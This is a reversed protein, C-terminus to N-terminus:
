KNGWLYIKFNKNLKPFKLNRLTEEFNIIEVNLLKEALKKLREFSEATVTSVGHALISRNRMQQITDLLENRLNSNEPDLSNLLNYSERLELKIKGKEDIKRSLTEALEKDPIKNLDVGAKKIIEQMKHQALMETLRYIRTTADDYNLEEARRLANSFMDVIAEPALGEIKEMSDLVTLAGLNIEIQRCLGELAESRQIGCFSRIENRVRNLVQVAGRYLFRDWSAYAITLELFIYALRRERGEGLNKCAEGFVEVAARWRYDNFLELGREIRELAFFEYPNYASYIEGPGIVRGDEGRREGGVYVIPSYHNVAAITLGASMVKTGGTIDVYINGARFGRKFLKEFAREAVGLCHNLDNIDDIQLFEFEYWDRESRTEALVKGLQVIVDKSSLFCVHEPHFHRITRILPDPTTGTTLIMACRRRAFDYKLEFNRIIPEVVRDADAFVQTDGGWGDIVGKYRGLFGELLEQLLVQVDSEDVGQVTSVVAIVNNEERFHFTRNEFMVQRVREEGVVRSASQIASILGSVLVLSDDDWVEGYQRFYLPRGDRGLFIVGCVLIEM